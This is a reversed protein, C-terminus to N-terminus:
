SGCIQSRNQNVIFDINRQIGVPSMRTDEFVPKFNDKLAASFAADNCGYLSALGALTEGSGRSAEKALALRNVEIYLPIRNAARVTGYDVCNSTGSTIGFSQVGTANTTAAIIQNGKEGVVLTGLGCGAEGYTHAEGSRDAHANLSVFTLLTFLKLRM